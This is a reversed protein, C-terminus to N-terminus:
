SKLALLFALVVIGALGAIFIWRQWLRRLIIEGQRADLVGPSLGAVFRVPHSGAPHCFTGHSGSQLEVVFKAEDDGEGYTAKLALVDADSEVSLLSFAGSPSPNRYGISNHLERQEFTRWHM